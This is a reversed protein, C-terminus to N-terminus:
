EQRQISLLICVRQKVTTSVFPNQSLQRMILVDENRITIYFDSPHYMRLEDDSREEEAASAGSAEGSVVGVRSTGLHQSIHSICCIPSTYSLYNFEFM